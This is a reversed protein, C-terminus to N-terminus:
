NLPVSHIMIDDDGTCDGAIVGLDGLARMARDRRFLDGSGGDRCRLRSGGDHVDMHAFRFGAFEAHFRLVVPLDDLADAFALDVHDHIEGAAHAPVDDDAIM